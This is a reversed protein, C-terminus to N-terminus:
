PSAVPGVTDKVWAEADTSHRQCVEPPGVSGGGKRHLCVAFEHDGAECREVAAKVERGCSVQRGLCVVATRCQERIVVLDQCGVRDAYCGVGRGHARSEEAFSCLSEDISLHTSQRLPPSTDDTLDNQTTNTTPSPPPSSTASAGPASPSEASPMGAPKLLAMAREGRCRLGSILSNRTRDDVHPVSQGGWPKRVPAHIGIGAARYAKGALIPIRCAVLAGICHERAATIDHRSGPTVPSTWLPDGDPTALFQGNGGHIHHQGSYWLDNDTESPTRMRDTPVVTGDLILYPARAARQQALVEHLDPAAEALVDIGEHLYRYATSLSIRNDHALRTVRTADLFWRLM